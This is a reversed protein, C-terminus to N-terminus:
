EYNDEKKHATLEIKQIDYTDDFDGNKIHRIAHLYASQQEVQSLRSNIYVTFGDACPVVMENVSTPLETVYTFVDDM